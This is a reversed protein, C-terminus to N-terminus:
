EIIVIQRKPSPMDEGDKDFRKRKPHFVNEAARRRWALLKPLMRLIGNYTFKRLVTNHFVYKEHSLKVVDGEYIEICENQSVIKNNVFTGNLSGYDSIYYRTKDENIIGCHERSINDRYLTVSNDRSRGVTYVKMGWSFVDYISPDYTELLIFDEGVLAM